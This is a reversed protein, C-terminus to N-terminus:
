DRSERRARRLEKHVWSTSRDLVKAMQEYTLQEALRLLVRRREARYQDVHETHRAIDRELSGILAVDAEVTM